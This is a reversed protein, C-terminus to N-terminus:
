KNSYIVDFLAGNSKPKIDKIIYITRLNDIYSMDVDKVLFTTDKGVKTIVSINPNLKRAGINGFKPTTLNTKSKDVFEQVEEEKQKQNDEMIQKLLSHDKTGYDILLSFQRQEFNQNNIYFKFGEDYMNNIRENFYNFNDQNEQHYSIVIAKLEQMDKKVENIDKGSKHVGWAYAGGGVTILIGVSWEVITKVIVPNISINKNKFFNTFFNNM